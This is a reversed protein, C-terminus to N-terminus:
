DWKAINGLVRQIQNNMIIYAVVVINTVETTRILKQQIKMKKTANM